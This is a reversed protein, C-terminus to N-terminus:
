EEPEWMPVLGMEWMLAEKKKEWQFELRLCGDLASIGFERFLTARYLELNLASIPISTGPLIYSAQAITPVYKYM